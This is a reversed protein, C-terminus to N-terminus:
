HLWIKSPEFFFVWRIKRIKSFSDARLKRATIPKVYVTFCKIFVGFSILILKTKWKKM